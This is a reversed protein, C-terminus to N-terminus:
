NTGEDIIYNRKFYLKARGFFVIIRGEKVSKVILSEYHEEVHRQFEEKVQSRM